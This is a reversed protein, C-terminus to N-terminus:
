ERLVLEAQADVREVLVRHDLPQLLDGVADRHPGHERREDDARRDDHLDRRAQRDEPIRRDRDQQEGARRDAADREDRGDRRGVSLRMPRLPLGAALRALPVAPCSTPTESRCSTLTRTRPRPWVNTKWASEESPRRTIRWSGSPPSADSTQESVSFSGSSSRANKVPSRRITPGSPYPASAPAAAATGAGAGGDAPIRDAGRGASPPRVGPRSSSRSASM